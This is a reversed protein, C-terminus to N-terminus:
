TTKAQPATDDKRRRALHRRWVMWVAFGVGSYWIVLGLLFLHVRVFIAVIWANRSRSLVKAAWDLYATQLPELLPFALEFLFAAMFGGLAASITYVTFWRWFREQEFRRLWFFLIVFPLLLLLPLILLSLPGM